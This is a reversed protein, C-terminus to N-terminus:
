GLNGRANARVAERIQAKQERTMGAVDAHTMPMATPESPTQAVNGVAGSPKGTPKTPALNQATIWEAFNPADETSAYLAKLGAITVPDAIGSNALVNDQQVSAIQKQYAQEKAEFAATQETLAQEKATLLEQFKGQEELKKAKAAEDAATREAVQARLTELETRAETVETSVGKRLNDVYEQSYTRPTEETPQPTNNTEETM